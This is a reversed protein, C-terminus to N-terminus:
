RSLGIGMMICNSLVVMLMIVTVIKLYVKREFKYLVVMLASYIAFAALLAPVLGYADMMMVVLPNVERALHSTLAVYTTVVDGIKALISLALWKSADM